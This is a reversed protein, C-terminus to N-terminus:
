AVSLLIWRMTSLLMSAILRFYPSSNQQTARLRICIENENLYDINGKFVMKNTVNDTDANREYLVIADGQRFNPYTHQADHAVTRQLEGATGAVPPNINTPPTIEKIRLDYIVEGGIRM